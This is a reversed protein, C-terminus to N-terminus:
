KWLQELYFRNVCIFLCLSCVLLAAVQKFEEDDTVMSGMDFILVIM